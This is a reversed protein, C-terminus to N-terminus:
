AAVEQIQARTRREKRSLLVNFRDKGVPASDNFTFEKLAFSGAHEEILCECADAFNFKGDENDFAASMVKMTILEATAGYKHKDDESADVISFETILSDVYELRGEISEWLTSTFEENRKLILIKITLTKM